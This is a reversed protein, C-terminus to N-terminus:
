GLQNIKGGGGGMIKSCHSAISKTIATLQKFMYLHAIKVFYLYAEYNEFDWEKFNFLNCSPPLM